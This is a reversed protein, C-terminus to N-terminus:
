DVEGYDDGSVVEEGPIEFGRPSVCVAKRSRKAGVRGLVFALHSYALTTAQMCLM